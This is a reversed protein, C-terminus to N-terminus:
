SFLSNRGPSVYRGPALMGVFGFFILALELVRDPMTALINVLM